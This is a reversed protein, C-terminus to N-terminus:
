RPSAPLLQRLAWGPGRQPSTFLIDAPAAPTSRQQPWCEQPGNAAFTNQLANTNCGGAANGDIRNNNWVNLDNRDASDGPTIYTALGFGANNLVTNETVTNGTLVWPRNTPVAGNAILIGDGLCSQVSNQSITASRTDDITIGLGGDAIRNGAVTGYHSRNLDAASSDLRRASRMVNDRIACATAPSEGCNALAAGFRTASMTNNAVIVRAHYASATNTDTRVDVIGNDDFTMGSVSVDSSPHETLGVGTYLAGSIAGQEITLNRSGSIWIGNPALKGNRLDLRRITINSQADVSLLGAGWAGDAAVLVAPSPGPSELVLNSRLDITRTVLWRGSDPGSSDISVTRCALDDIANQIRDGGNGGPYELARCIGSFPVESPAPPARRCGALVSAGIPLLFLWRRWAAHPTPNM